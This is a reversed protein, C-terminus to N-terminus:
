GRRNLLDLYTRAEESRQLSLLIRIMDELQHADGPKLELARRFHPLAQEPAGLREYSHGLIDQVTARDRGRDPLNQLRDIADEARGEQYFLNGLADNAALNEPNADALQELFMLAENIAAANGRRKAGNYSLIATYFRALEDMRDRADPFGTPELLRPIEASVSAVAAYGLKQIDSRLGTDFLSESNKELVPKTALEEIARRYRETAPQQEPYLNNVEGRDAALDYFEPGTGHIYKGEADIWGVLPSFGYNLYGEHSEFYVGRDPPLTANMLSIGDVNGPAGLGLGELMTPFVDVVSVIEGVQEGGRAGDPFRIMFPIALLEQYVLVSHTPEGHAGLAEGHDSVVVVLTDDLGHEEDLVDIFEGFAADMAAVEGLYNARDDGRAPRFAPAPEYPAHPDFYHVWLFFPREDDRERLWATAARTVEADSREVMHSTSLAATGRPTDYVDFGQNLGFPPDLM